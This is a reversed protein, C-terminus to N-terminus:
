MISRYKLRTKGIYLTRVGLPNPRTVGWAEDLPASCPAPLYGSWSEQYKKRPPVSPQTAEQLHTVAYDQTTSFSPHSPLAM